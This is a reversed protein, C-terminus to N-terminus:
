LGGKYFFQFSLALLNNLMHLIISSDLSKTKEYLYISVLAILMMPIILWFNLHFLGFLFAAILAGWRYGYKKKFAPYVFGRFFVEEVFPALFVVLLLSLIISQYGSGFLKLFNVEPIDVKFLDALLFIYGLGFFVILPLFLLGNKFSRLLKFEVLGLDRLNGHYKKVGFLWSLLFLSLFQAILLLATFLPSNLIAKRFPSLNLGFPACVFFAFVAFMCFFFLLFFGFLFLSIFVDWVSWPVEFHNKDELNKM